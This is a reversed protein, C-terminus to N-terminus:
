GGALAERVYDEVTKPPSLHRINDLNDRDLAWNDPNLCIYRRIAQLERENRIIHEYYNRQWFKARRTPANAQIWDLYVTFVLSQFAGVVDGLTPNPNTKEPEPITWPAIEGM